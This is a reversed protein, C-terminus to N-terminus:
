GLMHVLMTLGLALLAGDLANPFPHWAAPDAKMDEPSPLDDHDGVWWAPNGPGGDTREAVWRGLQAAATGLYCLKVLSLAFASWPAEQLSGPMTMGVAGAIMVGAVAPLLIVSALHQLEIRTAGPLTFNM